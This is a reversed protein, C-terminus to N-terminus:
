ARLWLLMKLGGGPAVSSPGGRPGLLHRGFHLPLCPVGPRPGRKTKPSQAPGKAQSLELLPKKLSKREDGRVVILAAAVVGWCTAGKAVGARDGM